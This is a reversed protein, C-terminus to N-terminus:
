SKLLDAFTPSKKGLHGGHGQSPDFAPANKRLGPREELVAAIDAAVKDADVDGSETLYDALENGSFRFLDAPMPLHESALWEVEARQMQEVRANATAAEERASDRELRYRDRAETLGKAPDPTQSGNEQTGTAGAEPPTSLADAPTASGPVPMPAPTETM